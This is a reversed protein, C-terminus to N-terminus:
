KFFNALEKKDKVNFYHKHKIQMVVPISIALILEICFYAQRFWEAFSLGPGKPSMYYAMFDNFFVASLISFPLCFYSLINKFLRSDFFIAMPMVALNLYYGWRLVTQLVDTSDNYVGNYTSGNIVFVFSDSLFYKFLGIGCFVLTLIKLVKSFTKNHKEKFLFSLGILLTSILFVIITCM